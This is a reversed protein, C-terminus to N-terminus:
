EIIKGDRIYVRPVRKNIDCTLEYNFRGSLNGLEEATIEENGDRGILTVRDGESAEKIDSVDVMFQDMCVRGLIPAKQGHILVYGKGSLSRPYGDGYGVPITAILMKRDAVFTGGYSVPTMTEIEKIFAIHSILTMVPRIDVIDQPVDESPRMGYITVGARVMDMKDEPKFRIISASNACHKIPISYGTISETKQLFDSFIQRKELADTLDKEDAKAFHTFIGEIRLHKHKLAKKVFEIGTDDPRIGIRSMGTDVAIHIDMIVGAKQASQDLEDLMDERFVAPRIDEKAMRDYAYPFVYGLVLVPKEIGADKLEFAEQATAVAYGWVYEANELMRAIKIAGHGYGDTKIVAAMKTKEPLTDHMNNMNYMVSDMDILAAVRKKDWLKDDIVQQYELM